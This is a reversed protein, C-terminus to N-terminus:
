TFPNRMCSIIQIKKVFAFKSPYKEHIRYTSYRGSRSPRPSHAARSTVVLHLESLSHWLRQGSRTASPWALPCVRRENVSRPKRPSLQSLLPNIGVRYPMPRKALL